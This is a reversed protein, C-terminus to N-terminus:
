IIHKKTKPDTWAGVFVGEQESVAPLPPTLHVAAKLKDSFSFERPLLGARVIDERDAWHASGHLFENGKLKLSLSAKYAILILIIPVLGIFGFTYADEFM